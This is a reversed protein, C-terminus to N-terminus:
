TGGAILEPFAAILDLTEQALEASIVEIGYGAHVLVYDGRRAQPVLDTAISRRIGLIDVVAMNDDEFAEIKAPVALCM